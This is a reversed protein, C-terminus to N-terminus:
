SACDCLGGDYILFFCTGPKISAGTITACRRGDSLVTLSINKEAAHSWTEGLAPVLSMDLKTTVQNAVLVAVDQSAAIQRLQMIVSSLHQTRRVYDFTDQRFSFAISDVCLLRCSLKTKSLTHLAALLQTTDLARIVSMKSLVDEVTLTVGTEKNITDLLHACMEECREPLLSGETDIYIVESGLGGQAEPLCTVIALQMALQTKGAGPHGVVETVKGVEVGGGLAADLDRSGTVIHQKGPTIRYQSCNAKRERHGLLGQAKDAELGTDRCLRRSNVGEFDSSYRYGARVVADRERPTLQLMAMHLRVDEM